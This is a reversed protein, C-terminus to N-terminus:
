LEEQSKDVHYTIQKVLGLKRLTEESPDFKDGSRLRSLYGVDLNTAIATMRLSGFRLVLYDIREKLSEYIM